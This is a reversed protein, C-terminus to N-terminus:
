PNMIKILDKTVKFNPHIITNDNTSTLPADRDIAYSFVGGKKPGTSPQWRAYDYARGTGNQPYTVDNWYNGPYGNEEYFSFGPVFKKSPIYPSYTNWVTQFRSTGSGYTQFWVYDIMTSVNRFFATAGNQNTDYTLLKGTKSKPGLYSSLAIYIGTKETLEAGAVNHEIDIDYGDLGYKNVTNDMISKAAAAYGAANQSAGAPMTLSGTILVKTGRARLYPIYVDKLKTWFPSDAPTYDPFVIVVDLSDPLETMIPDNANGSVSRDRWTRYFGATIQHDSKKYAILSQLSVGSSLASQKNKLSLQNEQEIEAANKKCSSLNVIMAMALIILIPKKFIEIIKKM